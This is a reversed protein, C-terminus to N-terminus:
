KIKSVFKETEEILIKQIAPESRAHGAIPTFLNAHPHLRKLQIANDVPCVSDYRGHVIVVPVPPLFRLGDRIYGERLFCNNIIYHAEMIGLSVYSCSKIDADLASGALPKLHLMSFEYRAWEYAFREKEKEDGSIMMRYYYPLPNEKYELPVMSVFREWAEPFVLRTGGRVYFDLDRKDAFWIGRLIMGLVKDQNNIAYVLALTTGWSHGVLVVREVGLFELLANIDNVLDWTTNNQTSGFPKSKGSGRQDFLIVRWKKPNFFRRAKEDIGAGPGGHLYLVPVGRPNGCQEYYITHGHSVGLYGANFTKAAPYLRSRM